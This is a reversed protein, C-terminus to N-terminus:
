HKSKKDDLCLFNKLARSLLKTMKQLSKYLNHTFMKKERNYKIEESTFCVERKEAVATLKVKIM